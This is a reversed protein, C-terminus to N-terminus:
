LHAVLGRIRESTQARGCPHLSAMWGNGVPFDTEGFMEDAGIAKPNMRICKHAVGSLVSHWLSADKRDARGEVLLGVLMIGHRVLYTDYLQQM